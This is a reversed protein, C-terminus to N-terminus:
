LNYLEKLKAAVVKHADTPGMALTAGAASKHGGGGLASAIKSVDFADQNKSRFSCKTVNPEIEIMAATVNWDKVRTLLAGAMSASAEGEPIGREIMAERSVVSIAAHGSETVQISDLVLGQFALFEPTSSNEMHLIVESFNPAISALEAAITFTRANTGRFRFGGTDTYMGIFLDSAIEPTITIKWAKFLDFLIQCTAPYSAEILNLDGFGPNTAHHDINVVKLNPPFVVEGRMSVRDKSATDLCLFLDFTSLDMELFNKEVIRDAGPFHRFEDPFASDGKIVTAKKGLQEVALMMALASGASDPDPAPHMHIIASSAKKIEALISPAMEKILPSIDSM